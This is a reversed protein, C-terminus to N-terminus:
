FPNAEFPEVHNGVVPEIPTVVIGSRCHIGAFVLLLGAGILFGSAPEPAEGAAQSGNLGSGLQVGGDIIQANLQAGQQFNLSGPAASYIYNRTQGYQYLELRGDVFASGAIGTVGTSGLDTAVGSSVDIRYLEDNAGAQGATYLLSTGDTSMSTDNYGNNAALGTSGVLTAKGTAADIAYLNSAYDLEFLGIQGGGFVALSLNMATNGALHATGSVADVSYLNNGFDELYLLGNLAAIGGSAGVPLTGIQTYAGTSDDLVGYRNDYFIVNVNSARAPLVFGPLAVSILASWFFFRQAFRM